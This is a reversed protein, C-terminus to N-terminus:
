ASSKENAGNIIECNREPAENSQAAGQQQVVLVSSVLGKDSRAFISGILGLEEHEIEHGALKAEMWRPFKGKGVAVLDYERSRGLATLAEVLNNNTAKASYNTSGHYTRFEEVAAEDMEKGKEEVGPEARICRREKFLNPSSSSTISVLDKGAEDTFRIISVKVTSNNAMRRVLALAERDDPGGFFVVCIRREVM